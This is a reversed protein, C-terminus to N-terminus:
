CSYYGTVPHGIINTFFHELKIGVRAIDPILGKLKEEVDAIEQQRLIVNPYASFDRLLTTKKGERFFTLYIDSIFCM